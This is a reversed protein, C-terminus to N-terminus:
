FPKTVFFSWRIKTMIEIYEYKSTNTIQDSSSSQEDTGLTNTYITASNNNSSFTFYPTVIIHETTGFSINTNKQSYVFTESKECVKIRTCYM